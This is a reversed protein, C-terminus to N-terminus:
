FLFKGNYSIGKESWVSSNSTCCNRALTNVERGIVSRPDSTFYSVSKPSFFRIDHNTHENTLYVIPLASCFIFDITTFINISSRRM